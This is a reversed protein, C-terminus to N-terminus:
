AEFRKCLENIIDEAVAYKSKLPFVHMANADIITIKNTDHGFGAGEDNLSNLVIFDFNKSKLKRKANVAEDNTELAFGVIVQKSTKMQGLKAAIDKTPKLEICINDSHRKMKHNEQKTPTYDAVAACLIAADCSNFEKVAIDYMQEANEVDIRQIGNVSTSMSVPGSILKVEAGYKACTEALAFGMKGTSRNGIFRVPDISEHTPGATILINKGTLCGQSSFFCNLAEYIKEPEEMRGKGILGSALEGARPEIIKVGRNKLICLNETTTKHAYMDLDMAPAVFVPAEMSLYTTILINDAIGHAMKGITSATAPAILMADAWLGLNVHSNWSGDRRDFFDSIVPHQSLTALSLPTIFEKGSPTIVVQVENDNKVLIRILECAKYAAISGTIGLVIKKGTM